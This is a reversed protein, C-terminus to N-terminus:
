CDPCRSRPRALSLAPLAAVEDGLQRGQAALMDLRTAPAGLVRGMAAGDQLFAAADGLWGRELQQPLRHIVVNLFSGIVLGLLGLAWPTLLWDTTNM